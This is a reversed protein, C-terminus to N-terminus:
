RRAERVREPHPHRCVKMTRQDICAHDPRAGCYSCPLSLARRERTGTNERGARDYRELFDRLVEKYVPNCSAGAKARLAEVCETLSFEISPPSVSQAQRDGPTRRGSRDAHRYSDGTCPESPRSSELAAIQEKHMERWDVWSLRPGIGAIFASQLLTELAGDATVLAHRRGERDWRALWEDFTMREREVNGETM